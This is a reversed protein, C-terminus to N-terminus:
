CRPYSRPSTPFGLDCLPALFGVGWEDPLLPWDAVFSSPALVVDLDADFQNEIFENLNTASKGLGQEVYHGYRPRGDARRLAEEQVAWPKDKYIKHNLHWRM